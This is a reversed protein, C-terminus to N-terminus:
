QAIQHTARGDFECTVLPLAGDAPDDYGNCDEDDQPGHDLRAPLRLLLDVKAFRCVLRCLSLFAARSQRKAAYLVYVVGGGRGGRGPREVHIQALSTSSSMAAGGREPVPQLSLVVRIDMDHSADGDGQGDTTEGKGEGHGNGDGLAKGIGGDERSIVGDPDTDRASLQFFELNDTVEVM